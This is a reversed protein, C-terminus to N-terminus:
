HHELDFEGNRVGVLFAAWESASFALIAGARDRSSRVRVSRQDFAVEVCESGTSASSTRWNTDAADFKTV